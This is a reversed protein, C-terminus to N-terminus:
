VIDRKLFFRLTECLGAVVVGGTKRGFLHGFRQRDATVLGDVGAAVAAALVPADGAGLGNTEAWAVLKAPAEALRDMGSVLRDLTELDDRSRTAVNRRAEEVVHSSACLTFRGMAALRVLAAARGAPSTAALYLVSSDVFVRM